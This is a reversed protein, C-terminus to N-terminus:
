VFHHASRTSFALDGISEIKFLFFVGSDHLSVCCKTGVQNILSVASFDDEASNPLLGVVDAAAAIGGRLSSETVTLTTGFSNTVRVEELGAANGFLFLYGITGPQEEICEIM